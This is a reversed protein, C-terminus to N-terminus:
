NKTKEIREKVSQYIKIFHGAADEENGIPSGEFNFYEEVKARDETKAALYHQFYFLIISLIYNNYTHNKTFEKVFEFFLSKNEELSDELDKITYIDFMPFREIIGSFMRPTASFTCKKLKALTERAEVLIENKLNFSSISAQDIAVNQPAIKILEVVDEEYQNLVKKLRDFEIDATELLAAL